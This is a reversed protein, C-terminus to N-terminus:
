IYPERKRLQKEAHAEAGITQVGIETWAPHQDM